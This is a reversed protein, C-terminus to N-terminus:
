RWRQQRTGLKRSQIAGFCHNEGHDWLQLKGKHHQPTPLMQPM